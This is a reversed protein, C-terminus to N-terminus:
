LPMLGRYLWGCFIVTSSFFNSVDLFIVQWQVSMNYDCNDIYIQLTYCHLPQVSSFHGSDSCSSWTPGLYIDSM